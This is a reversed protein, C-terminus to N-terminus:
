EFFSAAAAFATSSILSAPPRAIATRAVTARSSSTVAITARTAVSSPPSSMRTFLAPQVLGTWGWRFRAPSM